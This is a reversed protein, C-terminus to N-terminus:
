ELVIELKDDSFTIDFEDVTTLGGVGMDPFSIAVEADQNQHLRLLEIFESVKM